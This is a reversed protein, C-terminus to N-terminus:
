DHCDYFVVLLLIPTHDNGFYESGVHGSLSMELPWWEPALQGEGLSLVGSLLVPMCTVVTFYVDELYSFQYAQWMKSISMRWILSCSHKNCRHFLCGNSLLVAISTVHLVIQSTSFRWILSFSQMKQLIIQSNSLERSVKLTKSIWIETHVKLRKM